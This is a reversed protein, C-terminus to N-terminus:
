KLLYHTISGNKYIRSYSKNIYNSLKNHVTPFRGLLIQEPRYTELVSTLKDLTLYGLELRKISFVAIEPPVNLGAYFAYIPMDTFIWQTSPKHELLHAVIEVNSKHKQVLLHNQVQIISLKIPILIMSFIFFAAAFGPLTLKRINKFRLNSRWDEQKFYDLALAVGYTALWTLPISILLYYHYWIPKHSLFVLIVTALWLLPLNHLWQKKKLLVVIGPIALLMYDIEELLMLFIFKYNSDQKFVEKANWGLSVKVLQEFSLSNFLLGTFIFIGLLSAVWWLIPYFQWGVGEHQERSRSQILQWILLPVLFVTLLKIQLSLALFSGSLTVLYLRPKQQYLILTYISLMALALSPVGIMVSISLRLFSCSLTLLLTGILAPLSGLCRRLTQCFSWILLTSFSLILLRAAFISKGFLSFWYSLLVTLLPPQENWIETYLKFGQSYLSSKILEVGEDPDFQFVQGVPMFLLAFIFFLAPVLLNFLFSEKLKSSLIINM